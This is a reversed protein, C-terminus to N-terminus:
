LSIEPYIKLLNEAQLYKEVEAMAEEPTVPDTVRQPNTIISFFEKLVQHCVCLSIEGRLGKERIAQSQAHFPSLAQHAYILINSDLMATDSYITM